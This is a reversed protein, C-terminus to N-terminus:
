TVGYQKRVTQKVKIEYVQISEKIYLIVGGGRRERGDKRFMVYGTLALESDVTDKNAWSETMGIVHSDINAVM